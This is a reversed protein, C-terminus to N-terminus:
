NISFDFNMKNTQWQQMDVNLKNALNNFETNDIVENNALWALNQYNQQYTLNFDTKGYKSLLYGNRTIILTEIFLNVEAKSPKYQLFEIADTNGFKVLYFQRKFTLLFIVLLTISLGFYFLYSSRDTLPSDNRTFYLLASISGLIASSYLAGYIGKYDKYIRTGINEYPLLYEGSRLFSKHKVELGKETILFSKYRLRFDKQILSENM